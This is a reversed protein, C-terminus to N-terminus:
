RLWWGDVLPSSMGWWLAGVVVVAFAVVFVLFVTLVPHQVHSLETPAATLLGRTSQNERENTEVTMTPAKTNIENTM